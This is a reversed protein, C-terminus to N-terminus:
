QAKVFECEDKMMNEVNIPPIILSNFPTSETKCFLIGRSTGITHAALIEMVSKPITLGDETQMNKWDEPHIKFDCQCVLILFVSDDTRFKYNVGCAIQMAEMSYQFSLETSLEISTQPLTDQLIAFQPVAIRSMKFRIM